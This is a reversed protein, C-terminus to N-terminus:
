INIYRKSTWTTVKQWSSRKENGGKRETNGYKDGYRLVLKGLRVLSPVYHIWLIRFMHTNQCPSCGPSLSLLSGNVPPLSLSSLFNLPSRPNVSLWVEYYDSPLCSLVSAPIAKKLNIRLSPKRFNRSVSLPFSVLQREIISINAYNNVTNEYPIRM